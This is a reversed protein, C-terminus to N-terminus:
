QESFVPLCGFIQARWVCSTVMPDPFPLFGISVAAGFRWRPSKIVIGSKRSDQTGRFVGRRPGILFRLDADGPGLSRNFHVDIRRLSGPGVEFELDVVWLLEANGVVPGLEICPETM